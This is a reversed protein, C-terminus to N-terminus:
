EEIVIIVVIGPSSPTLTTILDGGNWDGGGQFGLAAWRTEVFSADIEWVREGDNERESEIKISTETETNM